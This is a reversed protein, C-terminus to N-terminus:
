LSRKLHDLEVGTPLAIRSAEQVAIDVHLKGASADFDVKNLALKRKCNTCEVIQM